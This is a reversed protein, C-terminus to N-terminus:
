FFDLNISGIQINEVSFIGPVVCIRKINVILLYERYPRISIALVQSRFVIHCYDTIHQAHSLIDTQTTVEM